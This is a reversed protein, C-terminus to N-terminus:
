RAAPDMRCPWRATLAALSAPVDMYSQHNSAFIVPQEINELNGLGERRIHAFIRTLPLIFLPQLIRRSARALAGRNWKPFDAAPPPSVSDPAGAIESEDLGLAVMREVRELSTLSELPVTPDFKDQKAPPPLGKAM